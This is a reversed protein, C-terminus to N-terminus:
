QKSDQDDTEPKNKKQEKGQKKIRDSISGTYAVYIVCIVPCILVSLNEGIFLLTIFLATSFAILIITILEHVFAIVFIKDRACRGYRLFLWKFHRCTMEKRNKIPENKQWLRRDM